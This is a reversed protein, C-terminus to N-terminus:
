GEAVLRVSVRVRADAATKVKVRQFMTNIPFASTILNVAGSGSLLKGTDFWTWGDNSEQVELVFASDAIETMAVAYSARNFGGTVLTDGLGKFLISHATDDVHTDESTMSFVDFPM